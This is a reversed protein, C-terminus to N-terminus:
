RTTVLSELRELNADLRRIAASQAAVVQKQANLDSEAQRFRMEWLEARMKWYSESPYIGREALETQVAADSMSSYCVSCPRFEDGGCDPCISSM